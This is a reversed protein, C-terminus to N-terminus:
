VASYRTLCVHSVISSFHLRNLNPFFDTSDKKGGCGGINDDVVAIGEIHYSASISERARAHTHGHSVFDQFPTAQCRRSFPCMM